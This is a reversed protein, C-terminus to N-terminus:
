NAFVSQVGRVLEADESPDVTRMDLLVKDDTIRGIIPTSYNRLRSEIDNATLQTHEVSILM